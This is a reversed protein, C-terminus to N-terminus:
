QLIYKTLKTDAFLAHPKSRTKMVLRLQTKAPGKKNSRLLIEKTTTRKGRKNQQNFKTHTIKNIINDLGKLRKITLRIRDAEQIEPYYKGLEPIFHFASLPMGPLAQRCPPNRFIFDYSVKYEVLCIGNRAIAYYSTINANLETKGLSELKEKYYDIISSATPNYIKRYIYAGPQSEEDICDFRLCDDNGIVFYNKQKRSGYVAKHRANDAGNSGEIISSHIISKIVRIPHKGAALYRQLAEVKFQNGTEFIIDTM